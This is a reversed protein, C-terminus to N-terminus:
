CSGTMSTSDQIREAPINLMAGPGLILIQRVAEDVSIYSLSYVPMTLPLCTLQPKTM